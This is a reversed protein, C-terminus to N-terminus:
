FRFIEARDDKYVRVERVVMRILNQKDEFTLQERNHKLYYEIAEERNIKSYELNKSREINKNVEELRETLKKEKDSIEKLQGRIEEHSSEDIDEMAFLKVLRKRAAKLKEIDNTLREAEMEEYSKQHESAAATEGYSDPANLFDLVYNWVEEDLTECKIRNGCGKNKAGSTNKVDSYEYVYKGWNKSKRGTMTNGCDGCRVLGSLLYQNLSAKSFRRRSESLLKQAQEFQFESIIAPVEIRIWEEKPRERIRIKEDDSLYKNGIMGETNWKNQYFAGTYTENMLIQRVVQKHWVAAGRKTPVGNETLYRAIGNIGKAIENPKTFLDFILKVIKEEEPNIIFTKKEDDFSYGYIRFDRLVRGQRAKERRGRSMREAIKAKEFESIAGRMQYFLRGEPTKDYNGNVFEITANKEIEDTVILQKLLNRSWRDPDLIIVKHIIGDRVDRRLQELGPRELFEGSYGDDVYERVDDTGAKKKCERIQDPMSYGSKAQEETSVRVYIGIM